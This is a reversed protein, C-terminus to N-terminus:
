PNEEVNNKFENMWPEPTPLAVIQQMMLQLAGGFTTFYLSVEAQLLLSWKQECKM